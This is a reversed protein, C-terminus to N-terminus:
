ISNTHKAKYLLYRYVGFNYQQLWLLWGWLVTCPGRFIVHIAARAAASLHQMTSTEHVLLRAEPASNCCCCFVIRKQASYIPCIQLINTQRAPIRVGSGGSCVWILGLDVAAGGAPRGGPWVWSAGRLCTFPESTPVFSSIAIVHYPPM